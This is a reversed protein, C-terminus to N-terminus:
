EKILKLSEIRSGNVLQVTYAGAALRSIDIEQNNGTVPQELVLKGHIDVVRLHKFDGAGQITVKDKAPNPIMVIKQAVGSFKVQEVDSYTHQGNTYKIKLRYFVDLGVRAADQDVYHYLSGTSSANANVENISSFDTGNASREIEFSSLDKGAGTQWNLVADNRNAKATFSLLEIPL